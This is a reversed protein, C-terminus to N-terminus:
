LSFRDFIRYRLLLESNILKTLFLTLLVYGVQESVAFWYNM